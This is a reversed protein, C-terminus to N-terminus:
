RMPRMAPNGNTFVTAAAISGLPVSALAKNALAAVLETHYAAAQPDAPVFQPSLFQTFEMPPAVPKGHADKVKKTVLAVYRTHQELLEDSEVFLTLSAPDWVVQNVGIRKGGAAGEPVVDGLSVFFVTSSNVTAPDIAEDFPVELRTQVSFGDLQNLLDIDQCDSPRANCDPKPLNVRLGTNQRSDSVTFFDSPFLM